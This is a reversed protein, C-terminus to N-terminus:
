DAKYSRPGSIRGQIVYIVGLVTSGLHEVLKVEMGDASHSHHSRSTPVTYMDYVKASILIGNISGDDLQTPCHFSRDIVNSKPRFPDFGTETVKM